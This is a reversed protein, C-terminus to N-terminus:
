DYLVVPKSLSKKQRAPTQLKLMVIKTKANIPPTQGIRGKGDVVMKMGEISTQNAEDSLM